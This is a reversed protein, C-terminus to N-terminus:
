ISQRGTFSRALTGSDIYELNTGIPLGFALRSISLNPRSLASKLYLATTDGELTSDLAIIIETVPALRHTIRDLRLTSAHRNDLPSLLHEIVHYLGRYSHTEELAYADRPSAIICLSTTDRSPSTCFPCITQDTLCGCTTCLPLQSPLTALTESFHSLSSPDWTLLEFAFREATRTGVGPLKKLHSILTLLPAPFKQAMTTLIVFPTFPSLITIKKSQTKTGEL